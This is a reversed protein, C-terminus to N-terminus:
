GAGPVVVSASAGPCTAGNVALVKRAVIDRESSGIDVEDCGKTVTWRHTSTDWWSLARADIPLSVTASAGPNLSVHAYGKLQRPPEGTASPDQLYMQPVDAGPRNGTNTVRISAAALDGGASTARLSMGSYGFTTYDLGFGFPFLPTIGKADYWRYGVLLGESYHSHPGVSDGPQNVGPWQAPSQEPIDSQAAPFTEPLRGAPDVDGFLLAAIANGDQQGPYWAEFLGKVSALWPMLVPGGTNLVVITNPNAAAVASILANQDYTQPTCGTLLCTGGRLTLDPRDIGESESDGAFVVAVSAAKAAAVADVTATGDAYVVADGNAAGRQTIGLQPSVAPVAGFEPVHGSGQGNYENEAGAQGAPQGIVAITRGRGTIPLIGNQNKLLVTGAESLTRALAVHAPTSVNAAYAAPQAAAPHDFLGIRFMSRVIRLVMDNLTSMPVQGDQVAAQLASGYYTGPTVNMEMDLGAKASAVTSHTAGWDSMVFGTFGFQHDLIGLTFPNECAYVSNIRNYSCMVSGAGGQRVAAEYQPAYMEELTREDLDSSDTMRNTEQSNAIYHKVVAIVHQSQIGQVESAGMQGSLYPDESGYEWNRGNMPVRDTEIGPALQVNIGKQLAEQGLAAGFQYQLAPDWSSSQTIPAPFATAGTQQDGVGEGADNLALDPVCLRPIAPIWGAAGYHFGDPEPQHVMAIKDSLSMAGLLMQARQDAPLSANMWPCSAATAQQPVRAVLAMGALVTALM